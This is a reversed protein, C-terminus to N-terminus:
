IKDALLNALNDNSKQLEDVRKGLADIDEYLTSIVLILGGIAIIDKEEKQVSTIVHLVGKLVPHRDSMKSIQEVSSYALSDTNRLMELMEINM